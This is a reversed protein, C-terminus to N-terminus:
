MLRYDDPHISLTDVMLQSNRVYMRDMNISYEKKATRKEKFPDHVVFFAASVDYYAMVSYIRKAVASVRMGSILYVDFFVVDGAFVSMVPLYRRRLRSYYIIM